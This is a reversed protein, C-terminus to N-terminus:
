EGSRLRRVIEVPDRPAAAESAGDVRTWRQDLELRYSGFYGPPTEGWEDPSVMSIWAEGTERRYVHYIQGPRKSFACRARHLDLDRATEELVARAEDQLAQIQRAITELRASAVAGVMADAGAIQRAVDILDHAPALRSMPYPSTRAPGEHKPGEDRM